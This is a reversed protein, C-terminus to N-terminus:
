VAEKVMFIRDLGGGEESSGRKLVKGRLDTSFVEKTPRGGVKQVNGVTGWTKRVHKTESVPAGTM